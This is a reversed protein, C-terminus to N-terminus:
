NSTVNNQETKYLINYQLFFKVQTLLQWMKSANIFLIIMCYKRIYTKKYLVSCYSGIIKLKLDLDQLLRGEEPESHEALNIFHARVCYSPKLKM